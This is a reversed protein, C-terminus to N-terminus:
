TSTLWYNLTKKKRSLIVRPLPQGRSSLLRARSGQKKALPIQIPNYVSIRIDQAMEKSDPSRDGGWKQM